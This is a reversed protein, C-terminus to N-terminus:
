DAGAGAIGAAAELNRIVWGLEDDDFGELEDVAKTRIPGGGEGMLELASKNKYVGMTELYTIRDRHAAPDHMGAVSVWAELVDALHGGLMGLKAQEIAVDIAPNEERWKRIVRASQLGLVLKALEEVTGPWRRHKPLVSWAIYVARRWDWGADRLERYTEWWPIRGPYAEALDNLRRYANRSEDQGPTLLSASFADAEDAALEELKSLRDLVDLVRDVAGQNGKEAAPWLALLLAQMRHMSLANRLEPDDSTQAGVGQRVAEQAEEPGGEFQLAVAIQEYSMGKLRLLLAAHPISVEPTEQNESM